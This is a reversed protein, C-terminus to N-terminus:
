FLVGQKIAKDLIIKNKSFLPSKACLGKAKTNLVRAAITFYEYSLILTFEYITILM